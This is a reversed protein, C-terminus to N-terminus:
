EKFYYFSYDDNLAFWKSFVSLRQTVTLDSGLQVEALFGNQGGWEPGERSVAEHTGLIGEVVRWGKHWALQNLRPHLLFQWDRPKYEHVTRSPIVPWPWIAPATNSSRPTWSDWFYGMGYYSIDTNNMKICNNTRSECIRQPKNLKSKNFKWWNKKWYNRVFFFCSEWLLFPRLHHWNRIKLSETGLKSLRSFKWLFFKALFLCMVCLLGAISMQVSLLHWSHCSLLHTPVPYKQSESWKDLKCHPRRKTRSFPFGVPSKKQTIMCISDFTPVRAHWRPDQHHPSNGLDFHRYLPGASPRQPCSGPHSWPSSWATTFVWDSPCMLQTIM